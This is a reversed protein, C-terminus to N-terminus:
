LLSGKDEPTYGGVVSVSATWNAANSVYRLGHFDRQCRFSIRWGNAFTTSPSIKKMGAAGARSPEGGRVCRRIFGEDGCLIADSDVTIIDHLTRAHRSPKTM